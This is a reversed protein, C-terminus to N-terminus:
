VFGPSTTNLLDRKLASIPNDPTHAFENLFSRVALRIEEGNWWDWPNEWINLIQEACTEPEDFLIGVARLNDFFGQARSNMEWHLPNWHMVTPVGITMSELFTTANYTCVALRTHSLQKPLSRRRTDFPTDPLVDIIRERLGWGFDDAPLRVVLSDRISAPLNSLLNVQDEIYGKFQPGIPVNYLWYSWRPLAGLILLGRSDRRRAKRSLRPLRLLKTPTSPTARPSECRWGWTLYRDSVQLEHKEFTTWLGTGYHGGHQAIVLRTGAEVAQAAWHKWDDDAEFASATFAVKPRSPWGARTSSAAYREFGELYSQPLYKPVLAAVAQALPTELDCEIPWTRSFSPSISQAPPRYASLPVLRPITGLRFALQFKRLLPLYDQYLCVTGPGRSAICGFTREFLQALRTRVRRLASSSNGEKLTSPARGVPFSARGFAVTYRTLDSYLLDNWADTRINEIFHSMDQSARGSDNSEHLLFHASPYLETAMEISSLRDLVVQTFLSLWPGLLVRWYRETHDVNLEEQLRSSIRPLLYEYTAMAELAKRELLERDDWHYPLVEPAPHDGKNSTPAKCWEGLFVTGAPWLAGNHRSTVILSQFDPEYLWECTM